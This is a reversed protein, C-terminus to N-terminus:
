DIDMIVNTTEYEFIEFDHMSYKEINNSVEEIVKKTVLRGVLWAEGAISFPPQRTPTEKFCFHFKVFIPQQSLSSLLSSSSTPTLPHVSTNQSQKYM